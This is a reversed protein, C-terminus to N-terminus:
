RDGAGRVVMTKRGLRSGGPEHFDRWRRATRQATALGPDEEVTQWIRRAKYVVWDWRFENGSPQEVGGAEWRRRLETLAEDETLGIKRLQFLVTNFFEDRAGAPCTGAFADSWDLGDPLRVDTGRVRVRAQTGRAEVAWRVLASGPDPTVVPGCGPWWSYEPSPAVVVLGGDGKVDVGRAVRNHSGVVVGAPLGYFLHFGGSKTRQRLTDPFSWGHERPWEHWTQPGNDKADFDVVFIGSARGTRVCLHTADAAFACLEDWRTHDSTAAYFGHCGLCPCTERDHEPGAERCAPCLPLPRRTGDAAVRELFVSWGREAILAHGTSRLEEITVTPTEGGRPLIARSM